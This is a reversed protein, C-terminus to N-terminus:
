ARGGRPLWGAVREAIMMTSLNTNERRISPMVSADAVFLGEVGIVACRPGVVADPDNRAGIACTGVPHGIPVALNLVVDPRHTECGVLRERGFWSRLIGQRLLRPMAVLLELGGRPAEGM